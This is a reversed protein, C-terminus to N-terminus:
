APLMPCNAAPKKGGSKWLQGVKRSCISIVMWIAMQPVTSATTQATGKPMRDASFM